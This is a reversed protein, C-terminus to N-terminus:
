RCADIAADLKGTWVKGPQKPVARADLVLRAGTAAAPELPNYNMTSIFDKIPLEVEYMGGPKLTVIWPEVRGDYLAYKPNIYPFEETAGTAARIAAVTLATVVQPQPSGPTYGLLIAVDRDGPNVVTARLTPVAVSTNCTVRLTPEGPKAAGQASTAAQAALGASGAVTMAVIVAARRWM